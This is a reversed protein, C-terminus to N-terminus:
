SRCPTQPRRVRGSRPPFFARGMAIGTVRWTSAGILAFAVARIGVIPGGDDANNRTVRTLLAKPHAVVCVCPRAAREDGVINWSAARPQVGVFPLAVAATMWSMGGDAMTCVFPRPIIIAIASAFHMAVGALSRTRCKTGVQTSESTNVLLIQMEIHRRIFGHRICFPDGWCQDLPHADTVHRHVKAVCSSRNKHSAM